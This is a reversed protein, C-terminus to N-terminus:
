ELILNKNNKE